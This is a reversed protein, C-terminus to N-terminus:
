VENNREYYNGTILTLKNWINKIIDNLVKSQKEHFIGLGKSSCWIVLSRSSKTKRYKWSLCPTSHSCLGVTQSELSDRIKLWIIWHLRIIESHNPKSYNTLILLFTVSNSSSVNCDSGSEMRLSFTPMHLVSSFSHVPFFLM